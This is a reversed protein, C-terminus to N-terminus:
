QEEFGWAQDEKEKGNLFSSKKTIEKTMERLEAPSLRKELKGTKIENMVKKQTEADARKKAVEAKFILRDKGAAEKIAWALLAHYDSDYTENKSCKYNSLIEIASDTINKGYDHVLIAYQKETLFIKEAYETKPEKKKDKKKESNIKIDIEKETNCIKNGTVDKENCKTVNGNCKTVDTNYGDNYITIQKDEGTTKSIQSINDFYDYNFEISDLVDNTMISYPKAHEKSHCKRCLSCMSQKKRSAEDEINGFIHHVCLKDTSGCKVCKGGDRNFIKYYNGNYNKQNGHKDMAPIDHHTELAKLKQRYNAVREASDSEKGILREIDNAWMEGSETVTIMGLNKFMAMAGAIIEKSYGFVDEMLEQSWPINEKFALLGTKQTEDTYDLSALLLEQWFLIYDSGNEMKKLVKIERLSFFNQSLKVWYYRKSM